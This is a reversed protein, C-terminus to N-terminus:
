SWLVTVWEIRSTLRSAFPRGGPMGERGAIPPLLLAAQQTAPLEKGDATFVLRISKAVLTIGAIAWMYNKGEWVSVHDGVRVTAPLTPIFAGVPRQPQRKNGSPARAVFSAARFYSTKNYRGIEDAKTVQVAYCCALCWVEPTCPVSCCVTDRAAQQQEDDNSAAREKGNRMAPAAAAAATTVAAAALKITSTTSSTAASGSSTRDSTDSVDDTDTGLGLGDMQDLMTAERGEDQQSGVSSLQTAMDNQNVKKRLTKGKGRERHNKTAPL